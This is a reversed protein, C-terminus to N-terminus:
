KNLGNKAWALVFGLGFWLKDKVKTMAIKSGIEECYNKEDVCASSELVQMGNLVDAMVVTHNGKRSVESIAVFGEVVAPTVKTEDEIELYANEFVDKPSWSEYGDSYQVMYGEQDAEDPGDMNGKSVNFESLKMPKAKILKCGVYPKLCDDIPAEAEM